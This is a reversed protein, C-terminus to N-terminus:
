VLKRYFSTGGEPYYEVGDGTIENVVTNWPLTLFMPGSSGSDLAPVM